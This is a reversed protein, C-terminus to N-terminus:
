HWQSICRSYISHVSAYRGITFEESVRSMHHRFYDRIIIQDLSFPLDSNVSHHTAFSQTLTRLHDSGIAQWSITMLTPEERWINFLTTITADYACSNNHWQTGILINVHLSHSTSAMHDVKLKKLPHTDVDASPVYSCKHKLALVPKDTPGSKKPTCPSLATDLSNKKMDFDVSTQKASDLILEPCLLAPPHSTSFPRKALVM